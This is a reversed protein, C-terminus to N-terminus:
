TSHILTCAPGRTVAVKSFRRYKAAGNSTRDLTALRADQGKGLVGPEGTEASAWLGITSIVKWYIMRGRRWSLIM